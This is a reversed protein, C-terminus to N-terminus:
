PVIRLDNVADDAPVVAPGVRFRDPRLGRPPASEPMSASHQSRIFFSGSPFHELIQNWRLVVGHTIGNELSM